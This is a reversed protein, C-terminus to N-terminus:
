GVRREESSATGAHPAAPAADGHGDPPPPSCAALLATALATCILRAPLKNTTMTRTRTQPITRTLRALAPFPTPIPRRKQLFVYRRWRPACYGPGTRWQRYVQAM